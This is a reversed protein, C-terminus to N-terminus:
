KPIKYKSIVRIYRCIEWYSLKGMGYLVVGRHWAKDDRLRPKNEILRVAEIIKAGKWGEPGTRSQRM